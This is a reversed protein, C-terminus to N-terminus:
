TWQAQKQFFTKLTKEYDDLRQCLQIKKLIRGGSEFSQSLYFWIEKMKGLVPNGGHLLTKYAELLDNHFERIKIAKDDTESCVNKIEEALFPNALLGRGIMWKKIDPFRDSIKCFDATDKIDGNYVVTHESIELCKEFTRLDVTGEYMQSATRPHIILESLPYNNLFPIVAFAQEPDNLGLRMKISLRCPLAPMVEELFSNILDPRALLGSGRCKKVVQPWPCGLNWNIEAYGLKNLTQAMYIFDKANNGIIQPVLPLDTNNEPMIDKLVSPKIGKSSPKVTPIFPAMAQDLGKFHQVFIKRYTANTIGRMPALCIAPTQSIFNIM